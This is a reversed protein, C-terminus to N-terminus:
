ATVNLLRGTTQGSTNIVPNPAANLTTSKLLVGVQNQLDPAPAQVQGTANQTALNLQAQSADGQAQKAETQLSRASEQARDAVAQASQAQSQLTAARQEAQDATRRAQELQLQAWLGGSASQAGSTAGVAM